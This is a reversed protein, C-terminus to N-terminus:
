WLSFKKINCLYYWILFFLICGKFNVNLMLCYVYCVKLGVICVFFFKIKKKKWEFGVKGFILEDFMEMFINLGVWCGIVIFILFLIVVNVLVGMM